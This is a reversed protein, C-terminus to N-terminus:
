VLTHPEMLTWKLAIASVTKVFVMEAAIIVTM